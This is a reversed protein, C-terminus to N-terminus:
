GRFIDNNLASYYEDPTGFPVHINCKFNHIKGGNQAIINYVGSVFYESYNCKKLYENASKVFLDKNKFYYAGCIAYNSVVKKEVTEIVNDMNDLKLYSYKPDDSNFTILAGDYLDFNRSQCYQNFDNSIFAHDCDNFVIPCDDDIEKVGNMCTLVAGNLVNPIIIIKANPYYERIKEDIKFNKIHEKLVVFTIDLVDIYKVISETAWYFFPKDHIEILPKPVIFGDKFFRSGAGGMPMVLHVRKM